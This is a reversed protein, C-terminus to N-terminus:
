HSFAALILGLEFDVGGGGGGGGYECTACVCVEKQLKPNTYVRYVQWTKAFLVGFSLTFGITLFWLQLQTCM